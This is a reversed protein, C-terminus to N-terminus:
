VSRLGPCHRTAQQPLRAKYYAPVAKPAPPPPPQAAAEAQKREEEIIIEYKVAATKVHHRVQLVLM